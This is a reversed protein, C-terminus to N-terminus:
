HSKENLALEDNTGDNRISSYSEWATRLIVITMGLGIVPDAVPFGVAVLAAAAVVSLSVWGDARAHMGDAILAPSHLHNGGRLRIMAALENGAFGISGALTLAVLNTVPQPQFLRLIAEAAVVVASACIIAVIFYGSVREARRNRLLFAAGLPIATLADGFNHILDGLLSLSNTTFFVYTQLAAAIGLVLLSWSVVKVGEKSRTISVDLLGHTHGHEEHRDHAHEHAHDSAM